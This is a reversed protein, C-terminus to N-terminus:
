PAPAPAAPAPRVDNPCTWGIPWVDMHEVVQGDILLTYGYEAPFDNVQLAWREVGIIAVYRDLGDEQRTWTVETDRPHGKTM